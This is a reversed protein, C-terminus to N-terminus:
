GQGWSGYTSSSKRSIEEEDDDDDDRVGFAVHQGHPKASPLFMLINSSQNQEQLFYLVQPPAASAHVHSANKEKMARM